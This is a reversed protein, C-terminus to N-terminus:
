AGIVVTVPASAAVAKGAADRAAVVLKHGATASLEAAGNVLTLASWTSIDDGLAPATQAAAAKYVLAGVPSGDQYATGSVTAV